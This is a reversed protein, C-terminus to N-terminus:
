ASLATSNAWKLTYVETVLEGDARRDAEDVVAAVKKHDEESATVVLMKNTVDSSVTADPVVPRLALMITTPNATQLMYAHTVLEGGGRKDAQELVEQIKVHDEKNATVILMKNTVDSSINADPVVTALATSITYANAWKVSYAKTTLDGGGRRDAQEIIAKIRAHDKATATVILTKNYVDPSATANPAIPKISYSLALPNAFKLAYVETVVDGEGRRDAEDVIAQVRQQDEASATVVLMKNVADPSVTANPVVASLAVAITTPNALQLVYAKTQLDGGGRKDAQDLVAQIRKHDDDNATVILMKNLADASVTASPVAQTLATAITYANAHKLPYAQTTIAGNAEGGAQDVIAKIQKQEEATATVILMKNYVDASITARPVIPKIAIMAATPNGRKMVYTETVLDGGDKNDLQDLVERVKAHDKVTATIALTRNAVDVAVPVAPLLSRLLLSAASPDARNLRYVVATKKEAVPLQDALSALTESLAVQRDAPGRVILSNTMTNLQITLERTDEPSLANFVTTVDMEGVEFPYVKLTQRPTAVVSKLEDLLKAVRTQTAADAWIVMVDPTKGAVYELGGIASDLVRKAETPDVDGIEYTVMKRDADADLEGEMQEILQTLRQQDKPTGWVLIRGTGQGSLVQLNPLTRAIFVSAQAAVSPHLRHMQLMRDTKGGAAEELKALAAVIRQQDTDTAWVVIQQPDVGPSIQASPVIPQLTLTVQAATLKDLTYTELKMNENSDLRVIEDIAEKLKKHDEATASAVISSGRPDVTIAADPVMGLLVVRMYILARVDRGELPYARVFPRDEADGNCAQDVAKALVEHDRISGLAMLKKAAVDPTLQMDPVLTQLMTVLTTPNVDETSYSRLEEQNSPAGEVDLQSLTQKIQGQEKLSAYALIRRAKVDLSFKIAPFMQQLMELATEPSGSNIPYGILLRTGVAQGVVKLQDLIAALKEHQAPKAWVALEGTQPDKIVRMGPLTALVDAQVANFRTQQNPLLSYLRLIPQEVPGANELVQDVAQRVRQHDKPTAIVMARKAEEDWTMKATPVLSTIVSSIGTFQALDALPYFKLIPNTGSLPDQALKSIVAAFAAHEDVPGWIILRDQPADITITSHVAITQLLKQLEAAPLGELQYIELQQNQAAGASIAIQDLTKRIMAQEDARAVVILEKADSSITMKANPVLSQMTAMVTANLPRSLAFVALEPKVEAAAAAEFEKIREGLEQQEDALAVVRLQRGDLALSIKAGPVLATLSAVDAAALAHALPYVKLEPQPQAAAAETLRQVLTQVATQDADRAIVTIQRGNTSLTVQASPVQSKITALDTAALKRELAYIKLEPQKQTSAVEKWQDVMKKIAAQDAVRAVVSLQLGDTSLTITADPLLRKLTTVLTADVPKELAHIQLVPKNELASEQDLQDVLSKIMTQEAPTASVVVRRLQADTSVEARPAINEVLAALATPDFHKPRYVVVQKSGGDVSAGLKQVMQKVTAQDEPAAFVLLRGLTTDLTAQIEPMAAQLQEVLKESEPLDIPYVELRPQKESPRNAEMQAVAAKIAEQEKPQAYAMVQDAKDDVTFKAAPFLIGLTEVAAAPKVIKVPYVGLVAPPPAPKEEKAKPPKPTPISAILISIAKLKGATETVLLQGTQPLGVCSGYKGVLPQIEKAVTDAPRGALPFLVRIIEFDGHQDIEDAPVRPILNGPLDDSLDVLILMRGRQLLSFGKTLLVSNLLDVAETPSYSRNNTYTFAGPPSKDMVLALGAQRAFWDLVDAWKQERFNFQLKKEVVLTTLKARQFENLLAALKQDAAALISKRQTQPAAALQTARENIMRAVAARQEDTLELQDAVNPHALRSYDFQPLVALPAAKKAVAPKKKAVPKAAAPAAAATGPKAAPVDSPSEASPKAGTVAPKADQGCLVSAQLFVVICIGCAMRTSRFSLNLM